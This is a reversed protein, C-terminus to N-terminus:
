RDVLMLFRTYGHKAHRTGSTCSDPRKRCRVEDVVMLSGGVIVGALGLGGITFGLPRWDRKYHTWEKHLETVGEGVMGVGAFLLANGAILTAIGAIKTRRATHHRQVPDLAAREVTGLSRSPSLEPAPIRSLPPEKPPPAPEQTRVEEVAATSPEGTAEPPDTLLAVARIIEADVSEKLETDNCKCSMTREDVDIDQRIVSVQVHYDYQEGSVRVLIRAGNALYPQVSTLLEQGSVELAQRIRNARPVAPDVEVTLNASSGPRSAESAPASSASAVVRPSIVLTLIFALASSQKM